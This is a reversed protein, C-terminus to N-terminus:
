KKSKTTKSRKKNTKKQKEVKDNFIKQLLNKNDKSTRKKSRSRKNTDENENRQISNKEYGFFTEILDAIQDHNMACSITIEQGKENKMSLDTKKNVAYQLLTDGVKSMFGSNGAVLASVGGIIGGGLRGKKHEELMVKSKIGKSNLYKNLDALVKKQKEKPVKPSIYIKQKM